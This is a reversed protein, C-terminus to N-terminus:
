SRRRWAALGLAGLGSGFLIMTSPEPVNAVPVNTGTIDIFLHAYNPPSLPGFDSAPPFTTATLAAGVGLLAVGSGMTQVPPWSAAEPSMSLDNVSTSFLVVYYNGPGLTLGSFLLRSSWSSTLGSVDVPAAVYNGTTTGTGIQNVLYVTGEVGSIPGGTSLDELPMSINVGTYNTTQNWGLVMVQQNAFGFPDSGTINLLTDAYTVGCCTLLILVIFPIKKM